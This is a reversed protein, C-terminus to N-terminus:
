ASRRGTERLGADGEPVDRVLGVAAQDAVAVRARGALHRHRDGLVSGADRAEDGGDLGGVPVVRRHQQHRRLRGVPGDALAAELFDLLHRQEAVHDAVLLLHAIRDADGLHQVAHDALGLPQRRRRLDVHRAIEPGLHDVDGQRGDDLELPRGAAGLRDGLRGLQEGLGLERHDERAGADHEAIGDRLAHRQGLLEVRRHAGVVLVVVAERAAM